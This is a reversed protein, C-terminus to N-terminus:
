HDAVSPFYDYYYPDNLKPLDILRQAVVDYVRIDRGGASDTTYVLYRGDPSLSPLYDALPTNAGPLPVLSQTQRDYLYVDIV